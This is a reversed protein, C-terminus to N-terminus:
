LMWFLNNMVTPAGQLAVRWDIGRYNFDGVVILHSYNRSCAKNLLGNLKANNNFDSSPSRYICGFLLNLGNSTIQLWVTEEFNGEDMDM